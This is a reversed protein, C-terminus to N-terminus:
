KVNSEIMFFLAFVRAIGRVTWPKLPCKMFLRSDEWIGNFYHHEGLDFICCFIYRFTYNLAFNLYLIFEVTTTNTEVVGVCLCACSDM